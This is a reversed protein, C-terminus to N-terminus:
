TIGVLSGSVLIVHDCIVCPRVYFTPSSGSSRVRESARKFGGFARAYVPFRPLAHQYMGYAKHTRSYTLLVVSNRRVRTPTLTKIPCVINVAAQDRESM